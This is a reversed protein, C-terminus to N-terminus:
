EVVDVDSPPMTRYNQDVYGIVEDFWSDLQVGGPNKGDSPRTSNLYFTGQVCEPFGPSTPNNPDSVDRCRGDVYVVIFKPLRTAYSRLGDNMFNNTLLALAELDRPDQGYGHLVYLVPYTLGANEALGYGPPLTVAIPGTRKTVPGTFIKECTGKIECDVGLENKTSTEPNVGPLESQKRDADSWTKGVYFFATQLRDLLQPATGVHQGDGLLIDKTSADINGYRVSPMAVIDNWRIDAAIFNNPDSPEGPLYQFGNYFATSRLQTGDAKKRSSIAGELHRAVTEFNFIDRVGGDSLIDFRQLAADDLVGGPVDTVTQRLIGHPDIAYWNQLGTSLTYKGDNEGVDSYPNSLATNAVGDLGVDQFPEGLQYAHDGETGTPNLQPDYDDQSPDPNTVANYGPENADLLGDIGSDTWPEHGQHIIPEGQDRLGNKNLDVALAFDVPVANGGAGTTPQAWTDEYGYTAKPDSPNPDDQPTQAGDCFSIVQQQGDPNYTGDFYGTPAKWVNAPDCRSQNCQAAIQQQVKQTAAQQALLAPDGNSDPGIPELTVQCTTGPPLGATNGAVFPDTAKPGRAMFSLLPDANQSNPNSRMLALDTFIQVYESRPFHGGTGSGNQSWWHEFDDTHAYPENIPYLNPAVKTCAPNSAPCFGGTEFNEIFWILWTWDSPGGLAGVADFQDHHRIGFTAAGGGGMSFGIVARHTLHRSRHLTGADPTSAVQYTGFFPSSFVFAYNGDAEKEVRQSAVTIVRPTKALPSSYVVQLHRWRGAAPIAAPNIPIKFELERRLIKNSDIPADAGFTVAPGLKVLGGPANAAIDDACGVHAPFTPMAYEDTRTFAADPVSMSANVLSAAGTIADHGSSLSAAAGDATACTPVDASRVDVNLTGTGAAAPLMVSATINATGVAGGQVTFDYTAHRLDLTPNTPAPAINVNDTSFLAPTPTCIDPDVSMRVARTQGPAVVINPPDFHIVVAATNQPDCLEGPNLQPGTPGAPATTDSGCSTL